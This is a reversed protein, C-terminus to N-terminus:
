ILNKTGKFIWTRLDISFKSARGLVNQDIKLELSSDFAISELRWLHKVIHVGRSYPSFDGYRDDELRLQVVPTGIAAADLAFTTGVNIVAVANRILLYKHIQSPEHLVDSGNKLATSYGVTVGAVRRIREIDKAPALPYPRVYLPIGSTKLQTSLDELFAIEGAFGNYSSSTCMPYVLYKQKTNEILDEALNETLRSVLFLPDIEKFESVYRFKLSNELCAVSSLGQFQRAEEALDSNWALHRAPAVLYPEKMPHDWSEMILTLRNAIPTLMYPHQVKTFAIYDGSNNPLGKILGWEILKAFWETYVKNVRKAPLKVWKTLKSLYLSRKSWKVAKRETYTRSFDIPVFIVEFLITLRKALGSQYPALSKIEISRSPLQQKAVEVLDLSTFVQVEKGVNVFKEVIPLAAYLGYSHEIIVTVQNM